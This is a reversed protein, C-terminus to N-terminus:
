NRIVHPVQFGRSGIGDLRPTQWGAMIVTPKQTFDAARTSGPILGRLESEAFTRLADAGHSHADHVPKEMIVGTSGEEKTHYGELCQIGSPMEQGDHMWAKGCNTKHIVFRPLLSRLHNIGTWQDRIVPVTVLNRLGAEELHVKPSSGGFEKHDADHPLFHSAIPIGYQREWEKCIAAYYSPLQQTNCRYALACVDRGCFQLLWIATFDSYGIDWFTYLPFAPDHEFDAIRKKVRLASILKGYIAGKITAEFAEEPTSPYESKIFVGISAEKKVYWYKQGRTLRIGSRELEGFYEAMEGSAQWGPPPEMTYASHKHWAFFHFAWDMPSLPPKAEMALKLIGYWEGFKGGEHTSELIIRSGAHVTNFAGKKIEKAKEPEYYSTYGYETVWLFQVTGGRLGTGAWVKSGNSWAIEKKNDVTKRVTAKIMAGIAATNETRTGDSALPDGTWDMNDYAFAIKELKRKADEDTKDIIASTKNPTFLEFDLMLIACYSSIGPQRCKLVANLDHLNNHLERQEWRPKFKVKRGHEDEIWYLNTLRYAQSSLKRQIEGMAAREEAAKAEETPESV